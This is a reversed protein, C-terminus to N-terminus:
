LLVFKKTKLEERLHQALSPLDPFPAGAARGSQKPDNGTM